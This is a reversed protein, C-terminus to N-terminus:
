IPSRPFQGDERLLSRLMRLAFPALKDGPRVQRRYANKLLPEYHLFAAPHSEVLEGTFTSGSRWTSLLVLTRKKKLNLPTAPYAFDFFISGQRFYILCPM